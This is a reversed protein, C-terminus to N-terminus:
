RGALSPQSALAMDVIREEVSERRMEFRKRGDRAREWREVCERGQGFARLAGLPAPRLENALWADFDLAAAVRDDLRAQLFAPLGEHGVVAPEVRLAAHEDNGPRVHAALAREHALDG